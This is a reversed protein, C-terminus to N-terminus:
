KENKLFGLFTMKIVIIIISTLNIIIIINSIKISALPVPIDIHLFNWVCFKSNTVCCTYFLKCDSRRMIICNM